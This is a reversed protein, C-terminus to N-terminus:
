IRTSPRPARHDENAQHELLRQELLEGILDAVDREIEEAPVGPFALLLPAAMETADKPEGAGALVIYASENVEFLTGANADTVYHAGGRASLIVHPPRWYRATM